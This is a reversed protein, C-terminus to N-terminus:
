AAAAPRIPLPVIVKLADPIVEIQIRTDGIIEGDAQIPLAQDASIAISREATLYRV